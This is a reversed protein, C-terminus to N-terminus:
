LNSEEPGIVLPMPKGRALPCGTPGRPDARLLCPKHALRGLKVEIQQPQIRITPTSHM